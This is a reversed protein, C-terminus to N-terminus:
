PKSASQEQLITVGPRLQHQPIVRDFMIWVYGALIACILAALVGSVISIWALRIADRGRKIRTDRWVWAHPPPCQGSELIKRGILVMAISPIIALATLGAFMFKLSAIANPVLPPRLASQLLPLLYMQFFALVALGLVILGASLVKGRPTARLIDLDSEPM